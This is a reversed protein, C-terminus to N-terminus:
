KYLASPDLFHFVMCARSSLGQLSATWGRVHIPISIPAHKRPIDPNSVNILAPRRSSCQVHSRLMAHSVILTLPYGDSYENNEIQFLHLRLPPPDAQQPTDILERRLVLVRSREM